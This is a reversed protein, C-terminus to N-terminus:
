DRNSSAWQTLLDNKKLVVFSDDTEIAIYASNLSEVAYTTETTKEEYDALYAEGYTEYCENSKHSGTGTFSCDNYDKGHLYFSMFYKSTTADQVIEYDM